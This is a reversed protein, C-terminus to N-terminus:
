SEFDVDSLVFVNKATSHLEALVKPLPAVAIGASTLEKLGDIVSTGELKIKCGFEGQVNAYKEGGQYRTTLQLEVKEMTPNASKGFVQVCEDARKESIEKDEVLVNTHIDDIRPRKSTKPVSLSRALPNTDKEGLRFDRFMGQSQQNLLMDALSDADKGTLEIEEIKKCNFTSVLAQAIYDKHAKKIATVLVYPSRPLYVCFLTNTGSVLQYTPAVSDQVFLRMWFAGNHHEVRLHHGFFFGLHKSLKQCLKEADLIPEIQDESNTSDVLKMTQWKKGGVRQQYFYLDFIAIKEYSIGSEFSNIIKTILAVKTPSEDLELTSDLKAKVSATLLEERKFRNFFKRLQPADSSVSGELM